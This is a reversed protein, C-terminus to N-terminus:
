GEALRKIQEMTRLVADLSTIAPSFFPDFFLEEAGAERTAQIEAKMQDPSGYSNGRVVMQLKAPDHGAQKAMEGVGQMMQAMGQPPVGAPNWGDAMTAVRQMAGPTYAALYIPPHPKQVPKPLIHSRRIHFFKGHFEVPDTTWIAKLVKLFEDARAARSSMPVGVADHEDKSWGQGLGVRLRGGSLVDLTTLSQALMVPNRYGMVLVSAGLAIRSTFAAAFTLAELPGLMIRMNAPMNGDPTGPYPSQPQVPYLFGDFVWLSDYGLEEAHQAVRAITEPGALPGSQPLAFGLRM